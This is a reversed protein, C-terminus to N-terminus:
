FIYAEETALIDKIEEYVDKIPTIAEELKLLKLIIDLKM